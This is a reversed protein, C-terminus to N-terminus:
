LVSDLVQKRHMWFETKNKSDCHQTNAHVAAKMAQVPALKWLDKDFITLAVLAPFEAAAEPKVLKANLEVHAATSFPFWSPPMYAAHGAAM